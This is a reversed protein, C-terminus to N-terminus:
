VSCSILNEHDTKLLTSWQNLMACGYNLISLKGWFLHFYICCLRLSITKERKHIQNHKRYKCCTETRHKNANKESQMKKPSISCMHQWNSSATKKKQKNKQDIQMHKRLNGQSSELGGYVQWSWYNYLHLVPLILQKEMSLPRSLDYDYVLFRIRSM